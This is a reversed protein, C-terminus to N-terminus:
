VLDNRKAFDVLYVVSKVHLKEILRTKYTSVTKNSILLAEAIENNSLGHCLHQLVVLERDSLLKILEQDSLRGDCRRVSSTDINPFYTYGSMITQVGKVLEELDHTKSVFGAAGGQICRSLFLNPAMSTLVLIRSKLGLNVIRRIVELGDLRPLAIDLIILEPSCERALQLADVGDGAEAVADFNEQQLLLKVSARIFPHDDVILANPM